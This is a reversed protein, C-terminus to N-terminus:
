LRRNTEFLSLQVGGTAFVAEPLVSTEARPVQIALVGGRGSAALLVADLSRERMDDVLSALFQRARDRDASM